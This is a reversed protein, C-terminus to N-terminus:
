LQNSKNIRHSYGGNELLAELSFLSLPHYTEGLGWHVLSTQRAFLKLWPEVWGCDSLLPLDPPRCAAALWACYYRAPLGAM